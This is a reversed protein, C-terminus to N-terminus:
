QLFNNRNKVTTSSFFTKSTSLTTGFTQLFFNKHELFFFHRLDTSATPLTSSWNFCHCTDFVLQLLSNLTDFVLQLLSQAPLFSPTLSFSAHHQGTSSFFTSCRLSPTQKHSSTSSCYHLKMDVVNM